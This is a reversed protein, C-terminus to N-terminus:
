YNYQYNYAQVSFKNILFAQQKINWVFVSLRDSPLFNAEITTTYNYEKKDCCNVAPTENLKYQTYNKNKKTDTEELIACILVDKSSNLSLETRNVQVKLQIRNTAFGISDFSSVVGYEKKSYDFPEHLKLNDSLLLQPKAASYPTLDNSGGLCNQYSKGTKLFVHKWKNFNMGAYLLINRNIQYCYVLNMFVFGLAFLLITNLIIKKTAFYTFLKAGMLAFVAYHDVLVRIGLGDYYTYACYASFFYFIIATFSLLAYFLFKNEKYSIFLGFLFLFCIPTYIFLGSEFGFLIKILQPKLWYFGYPAYRNAYLQNEKLLWTLPQILIIAILILIALYTIKNRILNKFFILCQDKTKFWFFISLLILGNNVRILLIIAFFVTAYLLNKNQHHLVFKSSHYLFASIMCFSYAHSMGPETLTYHLLNTGFFVSPIILATVKNSIRNLQFLKKLSIFGIACYTFAALSICIQFPFSLGDLPYHLISAVLYALLFFPSLLISLGVPHHTLPHNDSTLWSYTVLNPNVFTSQLYYYYYRADGKIFNVPNTANNQWIFFYCIIAATFLTFWISYNAYKYKLESIL